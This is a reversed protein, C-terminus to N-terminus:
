SCFVFFVFYSFYLIRFTFNQKVGFNDANDDKEMLHTWGLGYLASM